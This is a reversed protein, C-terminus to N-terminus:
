FKQLNVFKEIVGELNEWNRIKKKYEDPFDLEYPVGWCDGLIFGWISNELQKSTM